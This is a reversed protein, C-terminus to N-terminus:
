FNLRLSFQIQRGKNVTNIIKGFNPNSLSNGPKQFQAHNLLNLVEARFLVTRERGGGPLNFSKGLAFNWNNTGDKRFVNFGMNGRGGVPIHNDFNACRFYEIRNPTGLPDPPKCTGSGLLKPATDPNDFSKGLLSPNTINPRDTTDGDINGYGPGDSGTHLHFPTGSQFTTVGSVQWGKVFTSIWGGGTPRFPLEYTYSLALAHPTDFLSWGKTDKFRDETESTGGGREGQADIATNTFDEGTDINKSFTYTGRFSLGRALRKDFRVQMADYYAIGNSEVIKVASYRQDPRRLQINGTTAVVGPVERPRNYYGQLLLHFSRNGIYAIRLSSNWPLPREIGFTYQHSYPIILDPSLLYRQPVLTRASGGLPNLFDPADVRLARIQPPNFRTTQYTGPFITGYSIGYSARLVTRGGRPNWAFGARPAFNNKDTHFGVDTLGNIEQPATMLEYRVGLRFNLTKSIRIQDEIFWSHEWNRFGRYLDGVAQTFTSPLGFLFNEVATRGNEASFRIIGRSADSQLDNLQVRASSWGTKFSHRGIVRSIDAYPQFRNQIRRRPFQPGAGIGSVEDSVDIDPVTSIGLSSLLQSFRRTPELLATSRDFHFGFRGVTNASFSQTWGLHMGQNRVNTQPNQGAVIQFPDENYDSVNYRMALSSGALPKYDLRALGDSTKIDRPANSNLQRISVDPLNPSDAPYAQLLDAIVARVRPDTARPTREDALPAQINGNVMGSTFNQNFQLLLSVKRSIVPGGAALGYGSSRSPLLPGVNFFNRANLVSNQLFGNASGRWSNLLTRPRILEFQQMPAGYEAGYYNQEALHAPIYQTDAGRVIQLRNRLSNTDIQYVFINPNQEEAVNASSTVAAAAQFDARISGSDDRLYVQQQLPAGSATVRVAVTYTGAGLDGVRYTGDNQTTVEWQKGDARNTVTVKARAVAAGQADVIRGQIGGGFAAASSLLCVLVTLALHTKM